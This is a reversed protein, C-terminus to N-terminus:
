HLYIGFSQITHVLVTSHYQSLIQDMVMPMIQPDLIMLQYEGKKYGRLISCRLYELVGSLPSDNSEGYSKSYLIFLLM